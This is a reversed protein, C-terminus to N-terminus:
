KRYTKGNHSLTNSDIITFTWVDGPKWGSSINITGEANTHNYARTVTCYGTNGTITVTGEDMVYGNFVSSFNSGTITISLLGGNYSVSYTGQISQISITDGSITGPASETTGNELTIDGTIGTIDEGSTTISFSSANEVSPQLVFGNNSVSKVKGASTKENNGRKVILVYDDGALAARSGPPSITLTYAAGGSTGSYTVPERDGGTTGNDCAALTLGFVLIM